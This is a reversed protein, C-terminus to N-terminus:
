KDRRQQSIVVRDVADCIDHALQENEHCLWCFTMSSLPGDINGHYVLSKECKNNLKGLCNKDLLAKVTELLDM